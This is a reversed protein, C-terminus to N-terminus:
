EIRTESRKRRGKKTKKRGNLRLKMENGRSKNRENCGERLRQKM